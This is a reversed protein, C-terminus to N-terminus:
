HDGPTELVVSDFTRQEGLDVEIWMGDFLSHWSGATVPSNDFARQVQWPNPHACLRWGPDRAIEQGEGYLRLESVSWHDPSGSATQVVRIRRFSAPAFQFQIHRTPQYEPALPTWLVDGLTENFAAQYVVLVERETYAEPIQGFSLVKEGKPVAAEVMRAVAYGPFNSRLFEDESKIRLAERYLAKHMRWAGEDAYLKIADPWSLFAHALV